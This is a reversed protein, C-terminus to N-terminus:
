HVIEKRRRGAPLARPSHGDITQPIHLNHGAQLGLSYSHHQARRAKIGVRSTRPCRGAAYAKAQQQAAVVLATTQNAKSLTEAFGSLLGDIFSAKSYPQAGKSRAVLWLRDIGANLFQYVFEAIKVDAIQGYIEITRHATATKADYLSSCIVQVPYHESLLSCISLQRRNLRKKHDNIIHMVYNDDTTTPSINHRACIEKARKMALAAEHREGRAALALLKQVKRVRPDVAREDAQYETGYVTEGLEITARRSWSAMGLIQCCAQFQQGHQEDTLQYIESVMQHAMEHKLVEIVTNWPYDAILRSAITIMRPQTQWFGWARRLDAIRLLPQRLSLRHCHCINQYERVLQNHTARSFNDM